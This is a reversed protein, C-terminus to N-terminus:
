LFLHKEDEEPGMEPGFIIRVKKTSMRLKAETLKIIHKPMCRYEPM